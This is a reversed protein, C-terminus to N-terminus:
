ADTQTCTSCPAYARTSWSYDGRGTDHCTPCRGPDTGAARAARYLHVARYYSAANADRGEQAQAATLGSDHTM